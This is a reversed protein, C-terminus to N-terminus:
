SRGVRLEPGKTRYEVGDEAMEEGLELGMVVVRVRVL